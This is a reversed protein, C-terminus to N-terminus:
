LMLIPSYASKTNARTMGLPEIPFVGINDRVISQYDIFEFLWKPTKMNIPIAIAKIGDEEFDEQHLVANMKAYRVPDELKLNSSELKSTNISTKIILVSNRENIDIAPEDESRVYNYAVSAKIGQIRMPLAYSSFAKIRQPKFYEVSGDRISDCIRREMVALDNLVKNQNVTECNLIDEYLIRSLEKTTSVPVGSKRLQLGKIDMQESKPVINGEHIEQLSVYNKKVNTLLIKKFLFENKMYLLCFDHDKNTTNTISALRKMYDNLLAGIVYALINIISYRVGDEPIVKFPNVLRKREIIKENYFDYVYEVDEKGSVNNMDESDLVDAGDIEIHRIALDENGILANVFQYWPELTIMCSDTDTILVSKRPMTQVREIKDIIMYHYYVFEFIVDILNQLRDKIEKPPSNPDLFPSKLNQLIDVLMSRVKSNKVFEFLNNKYYLRNLDEQPLRNLINWVIECDSEDPIWNYGCGLMIKAFVNEVSINNDLYEIDNFKRESNEQIVHDIFNIIENLSGYKINNALFSEFFMISTSIACRGEKTISSAVYINYFLSTPAGLCGYIANTDVKAVLQLLNYREYDETGETFTFMKKKFKDRTDVFEQILQYLPNPVEGHQTFLCGYSTLIPKRSLIYETMKLLNTDVTKDRYNNIISIDTNKFRKNISYDIASYLEGESLQPILLKMMRVMTDRYEKIASSESVSM